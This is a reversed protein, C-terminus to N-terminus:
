LLGQNPTFVFTDITTTYLAQLATRVKGEISSWNDSYTVIIKVLVGESADTALVPNNSSDIVNANCFFELGDGGFGFESNNVAIFAKTAM